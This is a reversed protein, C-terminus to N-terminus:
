PSAAGESAPFNRTQATPVEKFTLDAYFVMSRQGDKQDFWLIPRNPEGVKVGKGAYHLGDPPAAAVFGVFAAVNRAVDMSLKLTEKPSGQRKLALEQAGRQIVSVLGQEGSLAAPFVGDNLEAAMKLAQAVLGWGQSVDVETTSQVTYDSPVDVAFLSADVATNVQFDTMVTRTKLEAITTEVRIPLQTERDAWLEIKMTGREIRFGEAPRGEITTAGLRVVTGAQGSQAGAVLERLGQFTRGFPSKEAPVNKTNFVLATKSAPLLSIAKDKRGDVIYISVTLGAVTTETRERSPALFMCRAETTVTTEEAAGPPKMTVVSTTKWTASQVNNLAEAVDAFALSTGGGPVLWSTLGFLAVLVTAAVAFRTRPKMHKMREIITYPYPQDAAKRVAAKLQAIRDPPLDDPIPDRLVAEVARGLLDDRHFDEPNEMM